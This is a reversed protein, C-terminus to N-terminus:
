RSLEIVKVVVITGDIRGVITAVIYMASFIYM